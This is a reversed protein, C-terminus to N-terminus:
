MYVKGKNSLCSAAYGICTVCSTSTSRCLGRVGKKLRYDRTVELQNHSPHLWSRTFRTGVECQLREFDSVDPETM